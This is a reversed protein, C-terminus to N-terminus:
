LLICFFTGKGENVIKGVAKRVKSRLDQPMGDNKGELAEQLLERVTKGFINTGWVLEADTDYDAMPGTGSITLTGANDLAWTLNDGCTGSATAARAKPTLATIVMVLALALLCLPLIKKLMKM